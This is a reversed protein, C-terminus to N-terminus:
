TNQFDLDESNKRMYDMFKDCEKESFHLVRAM